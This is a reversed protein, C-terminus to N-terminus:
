LGELGSLELAAVTDRTRPAQEPCDSLDDVLRELDQPEDVDYWPPLITLRANTQGARTLTQAFVRGHSYEMNQFLQPYFASMGLLYYGGDTSPGLALSSPADLAAFAQEIFASPLTPHDTGIIVARDYGTALTEEFARRMRDGLTAGVQGLATVSTPLALETAENKAPSLYLRVDPGIAAYQELADLLFARYLRASEYPSLVPSLRTKVRGPEPHKAFVILASHSCAPHGSTQPPSPDV